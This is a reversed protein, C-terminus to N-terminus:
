LESVQNPESRSRDNNVFEELISLLELWGGFPRVDGDGTSITGAVNSGDSIGTAVYRLEITTIREEIM